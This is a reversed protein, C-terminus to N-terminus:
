PTKYVCYIYARHLTTCKECPEDTSIVVSNSPPKTGAPLYVFESLPRHELTAYWLAHIYSAGWRGDELYIPRLPQKVAADYHEKYYTDFEGSRKPGERRYITQFETAQVTGFVLLLGFIPLRAMLPVASLSLQLDSREKGATREPTKTALSFLRTFKAPSTILWEVAPVALVLLFVPVASLRLSHFPWDTIAGPIIAAILGWLVFRWWPSRLAFTMVLLVGLASLIFAAWLFPGGSGPLHHRAQEDGASLLRYLNQDELFRRIFHDFNDRFPITTRLYSVQILRKGLAEPHARNFLLIPILTIAYLGWTKLVGLLRPKSTAFLLLGAAFLPALIRGSAYSYTLLALTSALLAVDLWNWIEKLHARHLALLFLVTALPILHAEFALRGVEFLWPTFLACAAIIGAVLYRESLRKALLGLLLCAAFMLFASYVRVLLISPSFFLFVFALLYADVPNLLAANKDHYAEIFLPFRPGTEGAGTKSLLYANYATVSEDIYFGPPNQSLGTCYIVFLWTLGVVWYSVRRIRRPNMIKTWSM